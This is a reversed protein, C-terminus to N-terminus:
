KGMLKFRYIFTTKDSDSDLSIKVDEEDCITRVLRLGLGFGDRNKEERYFAEFVKNTNKIEKSKSGMSINVFLGVKVLEVDVIENPLTYKIANTITNDIIRQLKTENFYIFMDKEETVFHFKIKSLEAVESFFEVRSHVFAEVNIAIKPYPVQDKKVLYSLDDYINFINKVAAEIKSLQRDKQNKMVFLEISALIVSLPTNTEHIAYKLFDKQDKLIQESFKKEKKLNKNIKELDKTKRKVKDKLGCNLEKLTYKQESITEVMTNAYGVMVKFDKFFIAHPNIVKYNETADEFFDLFIQIDRQLLSNFIKYFGIAIAFLIFALTAIAITNKVLLAKLKKKNQSLLKTDSDTYIGIYIKHKNTTQLFYILVTEDSLNINQYEQTNLNLNTLYFKKLEKSAYIINDDFDFINIFSSDTKFVNAIDQIQENTYDKQILLQSIQHASRKLFARDQVDRNKHEKQLAVDYDHYNEKILLTAFVITFAFIVIITFANAKKVTVNAMKYLFYNESISL